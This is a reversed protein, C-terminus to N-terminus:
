WKCHQENHKKNSYQNITTSAKYYPLRRNEIHSGALKIKWKAVQKTISWCKKNSLMLCSFM